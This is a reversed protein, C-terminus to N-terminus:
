RQLPDSGTDLLLQVLRLAAVDRGPFAFTCVAMHLAPCGDCVVGVRAGAKLLM